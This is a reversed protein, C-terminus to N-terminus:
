RRLTASLRKKQVFLMLADMSKKCVIDCALMTQAACGEDGIVAIGIKSAKLMQIDNNGNGIAACYDSGLYNIYDAKEQTHNGSQLIKLTVDFEELQEAASSFTDSTIVHLTYEKCLLMLLDGIKPLLVGDTALTGNYDLVIHRIDCQEFNPIDIM